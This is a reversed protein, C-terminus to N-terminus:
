SSSEQTDNNRIENSEMAEKIIDEIILTLISNFEDSKVDDETVVSPKYIVHYDLSVNNDGNEIFEIGKFQVVIDKYFGDIIEVGWNDDEFWPRFLKNRYNSSATIDGDDMFNVEQTIRRTM